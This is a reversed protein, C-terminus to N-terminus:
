VDFKGQCSRPSLEEWKLSFALFIYTHWFNRLNSNIQIRLMSKKEIKRQIKSNMPRWRYSFIKAFWFNYNCIFIANISNWINIRCVAFFWWEVLCKKLAYKFTISEVFSVFKNLSGVFPMLLKLSTMMLLLLLLLLLLLSKLPYLQVLSLILNSYYESIVYCKLIYGHCTSNWSSKIWSM